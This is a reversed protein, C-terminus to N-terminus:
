WLLKIEYDKFKEDRTIITTDGLSAQAIILRDFPDRHHLPLKEIIPMVEQAIGIITIRNKILIPFIDSTSPFQTLELKGISVKIAIEWLSAISVSIANNVDEITTRAKASLETNGDLFWILAHTDLLYQM